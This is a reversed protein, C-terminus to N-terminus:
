RTHLTMHLAVGRGVALAMIIVMSGADVMDLEGECDGIRSLFVKPLSLIRIYSVLSVPLAAYQWQRM